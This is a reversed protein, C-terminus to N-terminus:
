RAFALAERVDTTQPDIACSEGHDLCEGSARWRAPFRQVCVPWVFGHLVPGGATMELVELTALRGDRITTEIPFPLARFRAGEPPSAGRM